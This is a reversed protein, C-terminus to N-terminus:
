KSLVDHACNVRRVSRNTVRMTFRKELTSAPTDGATGAARHSNQRVMQWHNDVPAAVRANPVGVSIFIDIHVHGVPRQDESM